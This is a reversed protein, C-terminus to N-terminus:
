QIFIKSICRQDNCCSIYRYDSTKIENEYTMRKKTRCINFSFRGKFLWKISLPKKHSPPSPSEGINASLKSIHKSSKTLNPTEQPYHSSLYNSYKLSVHCLISNIVQDVIKAHTIKTKTRISYRKFRSCHTSKRVASSREIGYHSSIAAFSLNYSSM